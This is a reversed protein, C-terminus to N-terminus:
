AHEKIMDSAKNLFEELVAQQEDTLGDLFSLMDKYNRNHYDVHTRYATAGKETLHILQRTYNSEDTKKVVLGKGELRKVIQSVTGKTVGILRAIESLHIDARDGILQIVHIESRYIDVDTGFSHFMKSTNSIKEVLLLYKEIIANVPRM